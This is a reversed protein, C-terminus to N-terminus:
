KDIWNASREAGHLAAVSRNAITAAHLLNNEVILEGARLNQGFADAVNEPGMSAMETSNSDEHGSLDTMDEADGKKHGSAANSSFQCCGGILEISRMQMHLM